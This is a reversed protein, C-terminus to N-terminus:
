TRSSNPFHVYGKGAVFTAFWPIDQKKEALEWYFEGAGVGSLKDLPVGAGKSDREDAYFFKYGKEKYFGSASGIWYSAASKGTGLDVLLPVPATAGALGNGTYLFARPIDASIAEFGSVTEGAAVYASTNLVSLDKEFSELPVTFPNQLDTPPTLTAANYVVVSPPGGLLEKVAGFIDPVSSPNSLDAKLTLDGDPNTKRDEASRSVLAVRYGASRFKNAVGNGINKGAGLILLIKTSSSM